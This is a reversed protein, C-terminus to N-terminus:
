KRRTSKDDLVGCKRQHDKIIKRVEDNDESVKLVFDCKECEFVVGEGHEEIYEDLIRRILDQRPEASIDAVRDLTKVKSQSLYITLRVGEEFKKPRGKQGM